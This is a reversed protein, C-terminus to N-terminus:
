QGGGTASTRQHALLWRRKELIRWADRDLAAIASDLDTSGNVVSEARDQIRTTILEWEPIKPTAVARDLQAAFAALKEDKALAPDQWADRRAPLNGVLGYFAV